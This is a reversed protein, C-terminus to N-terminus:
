WLYLHGKHRLYATRSNEGRYQAVEEMKRKRVKEENQQRRVDRVFTHIISMQIPADARAVVKRKLWQASAEEKESVM